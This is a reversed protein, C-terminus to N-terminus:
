SRVTDYMGSMERSTFGHARGGVRRVSRRSPRFTSFGLLAPLGSVSWASGDAERLGSVRAPRSTAGGFPHSPRCRSWLAHGFPHPSPEPPTFGLFADVTPNKPARRGFSSTVLDLGQLRGHRTTGGPAAIGRYRWSPWAGSLPAQRSSSFAKFPSAWPREPAERAPLSPPARRSPPLWVGSEARTQPPLRLRCVPGGGRSHATPGLLGRSSAPDAM